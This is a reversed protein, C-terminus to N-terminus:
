CRGYLLRGSTPLLCLRTSFAGFLLFYPDFSLRLRVASEEV